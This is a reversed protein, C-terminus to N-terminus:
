AAGGSKAAPRPGLAAGATSLRITTQKLGASAPEFVIGASSPTGAGRGDMWALLPPSDDDPIVPEPKKQELPRDDM